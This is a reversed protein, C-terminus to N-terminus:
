LSLWAPDLSLTYVVIKMAHTPYRTADLQLSGWYLQTPLRELDSVYRLLDLYAGQVTIEIGHRYILRERPNPTAPKASSPTAAAHTEAISTTALTKMAVLRVSSNRALMEEIVKRMQEPATFKREEAGVVREVEALESRVIALRERLPRDPDRERGTALRTLQAELVKAESQKQAVGSSLQRQLKLQGDILVAYIPTGLLFTAAAFLLVRERLTMADIREAYRQWHRKM